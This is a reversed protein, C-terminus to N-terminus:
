RYTGVNACSEPVDPMMALGFALDLPTAHLKSPAVQDPGSRLCLVNEVFWLVGSVGLLVGGGARGSGSSLLLISSVSWRM